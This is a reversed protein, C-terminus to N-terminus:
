PAVRVVVTREARVPRCTHKGCLWLRVAIAV